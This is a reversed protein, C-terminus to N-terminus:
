QIKCYNYLDYADNRHLPFLASAPSQEMEFFPPDKSVNTSDLTTGFHSYKPPPNHLANHQVECGEGSPM